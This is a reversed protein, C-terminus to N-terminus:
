GACRRKALFSDSGRSRAWDGAEGHWPLRSVFAFVPGAERVSQIARDLFAFDDHLVLCSSPRAESRTADTPTLSAHQPRRTM